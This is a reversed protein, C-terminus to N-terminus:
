ELGECSAYYTTTAPWDSFVARVGAERVLADLVRYVDGDSRLAPLLPGLYFDSERGEVRGAAIRGSRELTWTVLELGAARAREAYPTARLAGADDLRLLVPIPPALTRFGERALTAFVEAEPAGERPDRGDLWIARAGYEPAVALWHRVDDPDFSQLQVDEPSVGADVYAQLLQDAYARQSYDGDFPMPVEPAKLEPVMAVGLSRFLAVSEAHTMLTGHNTYLDTRWSPTARAYEDATLAYPDHADMRGELSLFEEATLDSTCCTARAPALLGGSDPDLRAPVFPERCRAALPTSLINTTSALDCQSHRCVLVRDRTFTVDCEIAGAGMRAAALYSERTHEPFQLPAGRHGISFRSSRFPGARCEDLRTRLPGPALRDLLYFPRPGLEVTESQRASHPASPEGPAEHQCGTMGVIALLVIALRRAILRDSGM